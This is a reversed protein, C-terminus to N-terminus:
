RVRARRRLVHRAAELVDTRSPLTGGRPEELWFWGIPNDSMSLWLRQGSTFVTILSAASICYRTASVRFSWAATSIRTTGNM